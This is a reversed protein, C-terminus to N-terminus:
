AADDAARGRLCTRHDRLRSAPWVQKLLPVGVVMKMGSTALAPDFTWRMEFAAWTPPALPLLRTVERTAWLGPVTGAIVLRHKRSFSWSLGPARPRCTSIAGRDDTARSSATSRTNPAVAVEPGIGTPLPRSSATVDRVKLALGPPANPWYM